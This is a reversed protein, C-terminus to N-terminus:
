ARDEHERMLRKRGTVEAGTEVDILAIGSFGEDRLALAGNLAAEM